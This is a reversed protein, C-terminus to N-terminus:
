TSRTALMNSADTGPVHIPTKGRAKRAWQKISFGTRYAAHKFRASLRPSAVRIRYLRKSDTTFREKYAEDGRMFDVAILRSHPAYMELLGDICMIRGPEIDAHDIDYGASYAYMVRDDGILNFEGAIIKGHLKMVSLHLRHDAHFELAVDHIFQRFAANAFSGAEGQDTWRKQHLDIVADLYESVEPKTKAVAKEAGEITDFKESWRRMRRRQTKGHHKLHEAWSADRPKRWVSMQSHAHVSAGGERIGRLWGAVAQDGEVVGDWDVKSWGHSPDAAAMAMALGIAYGVADQHEDRCLVSLYDSCAEGDAMGRLTGNSGDRYLPLLGVINEDDDRAVWVSAQRTDGLRRWWPGLWQTQRFPVGRSLANWTSKDALLSEVDGTAQVNLHTVQSDNM